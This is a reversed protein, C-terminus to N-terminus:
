RQEEFGCAIALAVVACAPLTRKRTVGVSCFVHLLQSFQERAKPFESIAKSGM